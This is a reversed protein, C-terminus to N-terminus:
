VEGVEPGYRRGGAKERLFGAGPRVDVSVFGGCFHSGLKVGVELADVVEGIVKHGAETLGDGDGGDGGLVVPSGIDDPHTVVELGLELTQSCVHLCALKARLRVLLVQSQRGRNNTAVRRLLILGLAGDQDISVVVHLGGVEGVSPVGLGELEGHVVLAPHVSTAAGVVLSGHESPDVRDFCVLLCADLEGDVKEHAELTHLLVTRLTKVVEDDLLALRALEELVGVDAADTVVVPEAGLLRAQGVTETAAAVVANLDAARALIEVGTDVAASGVLGHGIEDAHHGTKDVLLAVDEDVADLLEDSGDGLLLHLNVLVNVEGHVVEVLREAALGTEELLLLAGEHASPAEGGEGKVTDFAGKGSRAGLGDDRCLDDALEADACDGVHLGLVDVLEDELVDVLGEGLQLGLVLEVDGELVGALPPNGRGVVGVEGGGCLGDLLDPADLGIESALTAGDGDSESELGRSALVHEEQGHAAASVGGVRDVLLKVLAVVDLAGLQEARVQVVDCLLGHVCLLNSSVSSFLEIFSEMGHM